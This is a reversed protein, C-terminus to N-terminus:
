HTSGCCEKGVSFNLGIKYLLITLGGIVHEFIVGFFVFFLVCVCVCLPPEKPTKCFASALVLQKINLQAM